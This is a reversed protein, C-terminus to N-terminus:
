SPYPCVNNTFTAMVRRKKKVRVSLSLKSVLKNTDFIIKNYFRLLNILISFYMFVFSVIFSEIDYFVFFICRM